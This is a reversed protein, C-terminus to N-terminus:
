RVIGVVAPVPESHVGIEIKVNSLSCFIPITSGKNYASQEINSASRVSSNGFSIVAYEPM